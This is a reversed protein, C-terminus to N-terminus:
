AFPNSSSKGEAPKANSEDGGTDAVVEEADDKSEASGGFLRKLRASSEAASLKKPGFNSPGLYRVNFCPEGNKTLVPEGDKFAQKVGFETKIGVLSQLTEENIDQGHKWGIRELSEITIEYQKKGAMKGVGYAGSLEGQWYDQEGTSEEVGLLAVDVADPDHENFRPDAFTAEKITVKIQGEKTFM